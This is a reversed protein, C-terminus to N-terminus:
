LSWENLLKKCTIYLDDNRASPSVVINNIGNNRAVEATRESVVVWPKRYWNPHLHKSALSILEGSTAVVCSVQDEYHRIKEVVAINPLREYCDFNEVIANRENLSTTLLTRGGKGKVVAIRKNSVDQLDKLELLGESTSQEPITIPTNTSSLASATSQGVAIVAMQKPWNHAQMSETVFQAAYTSTFIAVNPPTDSLLTKQLQACPHEVPQIRILPLGVADIGNERFTKVTNECKGEPRIILVSQM